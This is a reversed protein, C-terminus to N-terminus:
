FGAEDILEPNVANETTEDPVSNIVQMYEANSELESKSFSPLEEGVYIWGPYMPTAVRAKGNYVNGVVKINVEAGIVEHKNLLQIIKSCYDRWNSGNVGLVEEEPAFKMAFYGIRDVAKKVKDPDDLNPPFDLRGHTSGKVSKGTVDEGNLKFTTVLVNDQGAIEKLDIDTIVGSGIYPMTLYNEATEQIGEKSPKFM